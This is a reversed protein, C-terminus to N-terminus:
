YLKNIENQDIALVVLQLGFISLVLGLLSLSDNGPLGESKLGEHLSTGVQYQAYINYLGCTILSLLFWPWFSYKQEGILANVAKFIRNQWFLGYIGCTIITFVVDMAINGEATGREPKM